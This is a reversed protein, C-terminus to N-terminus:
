SQNTLIDDYFSASSSSPGIQKIETKYCTNFIPPYASSEVCVHYLYVFICMSYWLIMACGEHGVIFAFFYIFLFWIYFEMYELNPPRIM